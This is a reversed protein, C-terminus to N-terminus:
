LKKGRDEAVRWLSYDKKKEMEVFCVCVCVCLIVLNNVQLIDNVSGIYCECIVNVSV